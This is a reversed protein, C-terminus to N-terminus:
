SNLATYNQDRMGFGNRQQVEANRVQNHAHFPVVVESQVEVEINAEGTVCHTSWNLNLM